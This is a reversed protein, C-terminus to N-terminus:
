SPMGAAVLRRPQAPPVFGQLTFGLLAVQRFVAPRRLTSSTASLNLFGAPSVTAPLIPGAPLNGPSLGPLEVPCGPPVHVGEEWHASPALFGLLPAWPPSVSPPFQPFYRTPSSFGLLPNSLSDSRQALAAPPIGSLSLRKLSHWSWVPLLCGLLGAVGSSPLVRFPVTVELRSLRIPSTVAQRAVEQIGRSPSSPVKV